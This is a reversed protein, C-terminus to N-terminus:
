LDLYKYYESNINELFEKVRESAPNTPQRSITRRMSNLGSWLKGERVEILKKYNKYLFSLYIMDSKQHGKVFADRLIGDVRFGIVEMLRVWGKLGPYPSCSYIRDLGIKEFGHQCIMCVSEMAAFTSFDFLDHNGINIGFDATKKVRDIEQLSVVGGIDNKRKPKILLVLDGDAKSKELYELQDKKTNPFVAHSNYQNQNVNNFWTSWDSIEIAESSAICLDVQEGNLFTEYSNDM